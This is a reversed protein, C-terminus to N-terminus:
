GWRRREYRLTKESAPLLKAGENGWVIDIRVISCRAADQACPKLKTTQYKSHQFPVM